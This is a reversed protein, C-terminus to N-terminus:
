GGPSEQTAAVESILSVTIETYDPHLKLAESLGQQIAVRRCLIKMEPKLGSTDICYIPASYTGAVGYRVTLSGIAIV